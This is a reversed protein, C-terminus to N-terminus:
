APPTRGCCEGSPIAHGHPCVEPHGLFTCISETMPPSLRHEFYCAEEEVVDPQMQFTESFLLEALRHRRILIQARRRGTETLHPENASDRRVLDQEVMRDTLSTQALQSGRACVEQPIEVGEQALWLYELVEDADEDRQAHTLHYGAVRGHELQLQRDALRGVALDHTVVILTQGREHMSRFLDLVIGENERDLSGTPEDALVLKPRNILARAICVRQREGGSMQGPLHHLRHGLAVEELARTAEDQDAMSHLYQALMINELATLYPILHYQQFVLGVEERRYRTRQRGNLKALDRGDVQVSGADPRDLGGLIHLLTTKGSGSPGMVALWEGKEVSLSIGDLATVNGDYNRTLGDLEIFAM